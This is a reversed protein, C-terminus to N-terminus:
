INILILIIFINKYRSNNFINTNDCIFGNIICVINNKQKSLIQCHIIQLHNSSIWGEDKKSLWRFLATYKKVTLLATEVFVHLLWPLPNDVIDTGVEFVVHFIMWDPSTVYLLRILSLNQYSKKQTVNEISCSWHSKSKWSVKTTLHLSIRALSSLSYSRFWVSWLDDCRLWFLSM